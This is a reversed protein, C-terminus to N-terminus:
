HSHLSERPEPDAMFELFGHEVLNLFGPNQAQGPFPSFYHTASSSDNRWTLAYAPKLPTEPMGHELSYERLGDRSIPDFFYRNWFEPISLSENGIETIAPIKDHANSIQMLQYVGGKWSKLSELDQPAGEGAQPFFYQDVGLLDVWLDGPYRDLYDNLVNSPSYAYLLNHIGAEQLRKASLKWFEKYESASCHDAGWWFWGFNHEHWPRFLIPVEPIKKLFPILRDYKSFFVARFAEDGLIQKVTSGSTEWANTDTGDAKFNPMHWSLTIIGGRRHIERMQRLTLDENWDSILLFDYGIVGPNKGIVKHLDSEPLGGPYTASSQVTWGRGETFANQQGYIIQASPDRAQNQLRQYLIKTEAGASLDVQGFSPSGLLLAMMLFLRRKM